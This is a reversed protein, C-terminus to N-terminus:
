VDYLLYAKLGPPLPLKQVKGRNMPKMSRRIQLRCLHTLMAPQSAMYLVQMRRRMPIAVREVAQLNYDEGAELLLGFIAEDSHVKVLNRLMGKPSQLPSQMVVEAGYDLLLKVIEVDITDAARSRFYEVFPSKLVGEDFKPCLNPDAGAKLLLEIIDRQNVLDSCCALHLPTGIYTYVANSDAQHSLLLEVIDPNDRIVALDLPSPKSYDSPM